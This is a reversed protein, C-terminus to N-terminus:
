VKNQCNAYSNTLRQVFGLFPPHLDYGQGDLLLFNMVSALDLGSICISKVSPASAITTQNMTKFLLVANHQPVPLDVFPM